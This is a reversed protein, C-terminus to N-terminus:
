EKIFAKAEGNSILVYFYTGNSYKKEIRYSQLPTKEKKNTFSSLIFISQLLIITWLILPQKKFNKM